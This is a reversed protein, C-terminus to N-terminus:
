IIVVTSQLLEVLLLDASAPEAAVDLRRVLRYPMVGTPLMGPMEM